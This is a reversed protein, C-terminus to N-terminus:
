KLPLSSESHEIITNFVSIAQTIEQQSYSELSKKMVKMLHKKFRKYVLKGEETLMLIVKRRDSESSVRTILGQRVLTDLQRTATSPGIDLAEVIDKMICEPGLRTELHKLMTTLYLDKSVFKRGLGVRVSTRRLEREDIM